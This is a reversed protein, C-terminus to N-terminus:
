TSKKLFRRLTFFAMLYTLAGIWLVIKFGIVIALMITVIPALVSLCGNIAWAWPILSKNKGGLIKLGTPFPIGMFLGLPMLILFALLIKVSMPYPSINDSIAPLFMSYAIILLSIVITVAPSRLGIVRYSLLSGIGSSILISALVTAVAYSPNELLFIMRQVMSVEVFMFGTGLFAFYPLLGIGRDNRPVASAIEENNKPMQKQSRPAQGSGLNSRSRTGRLSLHPTERRAIVGSINRGHKRSFVPLVMLILSLFLVQIFVAPLIYGEEIFYQWKEGMIKYITSINKLKLYYHFFPNDDRVPMVDFIYTNTFRERTEPNLINKFATFYENSPMRVYINTEGEKIGPCYILDFRKDKSFRKIAEIESSTFPSKKMLICISGWSRIAAIHKEIDNDKIGLEEMAKNATNLIRLEIRQPPLIFLNISLIGDHKLHTLYEKFAEVTFRYDESIGFSGSPATGIMPIDIIDFHKDSYKLWSRGLGSWSNQSYIGGSFVNFDKQIVKILLHNSEVKYTNLAGYYEAVLSQLGGKSDLILVDNNKSIEYPLASPLYKLFELSARDDSATVANIEGGDISFGIQEPLTDLYRLSLGPAFRVAPSKFTDIRSFPSYYTKLHGAGPYRLAIQLGKYPSMRLKVFAPHFVLLSLTLLMLTLSIIKLSKGGSIFAASLAISSIIFVTKDPGAMTMFYLVGISGIGAGILDASYVLGSKESMSSFAVAVILGTFFFPISLTICYIGIYFFQMRDWSLRVPDFPIHNSVIYTISISIGLLLSYIGIKSPNKLPTYLSLVTGSAGIGLMAISIIMFAFHYWLFISFIRTLAIEYALSSSSCLFIVFFIKPHKTM